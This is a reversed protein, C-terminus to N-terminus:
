ASEQERREYYAALRQMTQMRPNKTTADRLKRLTAFPVGSESSIGHLEHPPESKLRELVTPLDTM